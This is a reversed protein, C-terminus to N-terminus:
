QHYLSETVLESAPEYGASLTPTRQGRSEVVRKPLSDVSGPSTEVAPMVHGVYAADGM